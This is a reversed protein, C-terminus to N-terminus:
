RERGGHEGPEVSPLRGSPQLPSSAPRRGLTLALLAVGATIAIDAVNFPPWPGLAIFDTVAGDGGRDILNALAGALVAAAPVAGAAAPSRLLLVALGIVAVLVLILVLEGGGALLGFAVGSNEGHELRAGLPLEVVRGGGLDRTVLAKTVLDGALVAVFSLVSAPWLM